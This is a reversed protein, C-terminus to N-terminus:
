TESLLNTMINDINNVFEQFGCRKFKVDDGMLRKYRKETDDVERSHESNNGQDYDIVLIRPRPTANAIAKTLMCRIHIDAEPLSYGIFVLYESTSISKEAREWVEKIIRNDYVKFMTPTVILVEYPSTCNRSACLYNRHQTRLAGKEYITIDLEECRPCWLWNLSGHIKFLPIKGKNASRPIFPDSRSQAKFFREKNHKLRFPVCPQNKLMCKRSDNGM